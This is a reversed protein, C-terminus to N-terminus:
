KGRQPPEGARSGPGRNAHKQPCSRCSTFNPNQKNQKSQDVSEQVCHRGVRKAPIGVLALSQKCNPCTCCDGAQGGTTVQHLPMGVGSSRQSEFTNDLGDSGWSRMSDFSRMSGASMLSNPTSTVSCCVMIHNPWLQVCLSCSQLKLLCLDNRGLKVQVAALLCSVIELQLNHLVFLKAFPCLACGTVVLLRHGIM